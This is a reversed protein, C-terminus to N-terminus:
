TVAGALVIPGTSAQSGGAPEVSVAFATVEHARDIRAVRTAVAATGAVAFLGAPEPPQNGRISWLEYTRGAPLPALGSVFLAAEGSAADILVRGRAQVGGQPELAATLTRPGGVVRLVQAQADLRERLGALIRRHDELETALRLNTQRLAALEIAQSTALRAERGLLGGFALAAGAAVAGIMRYRFLVRGLRTVTAQQRAEALLRERLQAPPPTAHLEALAMLTEDDLRRDDTGISDHERV